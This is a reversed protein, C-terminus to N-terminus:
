LLAINLKYSGELSKRLKNYYVIYRKASGYSIFDIYRALDAVVILAKPAHKCMPLMPRMRTFSSDVTKVVCDIIRSSLDFTIILSIRSKFVISDFNNRTSYNIRM